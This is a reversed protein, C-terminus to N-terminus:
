VFVARFRRILKIFPLISFAYIPHKKNYQTGNVGFGIIDKINSEDLYTGFMRDWFAFNMGYNCNYHSPNISHHLWHLSPSMLIFSLPKPYIIKLSSHGLLSSFFNLSLYLYYIIFPMAFGQTFYENILLGSLVSIPLVLPATFVEQLFLNRDKNLITMETASHHFEHLDWIFGVEHAIRHNLYNVLDEMLIAFLFILSAILESSPNFVISQYISHFWEGIPQYVNALGFTLFVGIKPFQSSLLGFFFYWVDAFKFGKSRSIRGLSTDRFTYKYSSKKYLLEVYTIMIIPFIILIFKLSITAIFLNIYNEGVGFLNFLNDLNFNVMSFKESASRFSLLFFPFILILWSFKGRNQVNPSKILNNIDNKYNM